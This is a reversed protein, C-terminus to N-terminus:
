PHPPPLEDREEATRCCPREHRARLLAVAYPADAHEHHAVFVIGLLLTAERHESLRERAQTPGIAAVHPHVKTPEAGVDIPYLRPNKFLNFDTPAPPGLFHLAM